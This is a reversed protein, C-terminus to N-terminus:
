ELSSPAFTLWARGRAREAVFSDRAVNLKYTVFM